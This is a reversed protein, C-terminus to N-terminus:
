DDECVRDISLGGTIQIKKVKKNVDPSIVYRGTDNIPIFSIISAIFMIPIKIINKFHYKQIPREAAFLGPASLSLIALCTAVAIAKTLAKKHM